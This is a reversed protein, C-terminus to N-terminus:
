LMHHLPAQWHLVHMTSTSTDLVMVRNEEARYLIYRHQFVCCAFCNFWAFSGWVAEGM